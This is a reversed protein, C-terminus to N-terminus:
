KTCNEFSVECFKANGLAIIFSTADWFHLTKGMIEAREKVNQKFELVNQPIEWDKEMLKLIMDHATEAFLVYDPFKAVIRM